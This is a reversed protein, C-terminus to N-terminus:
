ELGTALKRLQRGINRIRQQLFESTLNLTANSSRNPTARATELIAVKVYVLRVIPRLVVFERKDRGGRQYPTTFRRFGSRRDGAYFSSPM